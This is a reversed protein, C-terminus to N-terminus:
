RCPPRRSWRCQLDRLSAITNDGEAHSSDGNAVTRWGETHASYGYAITFGGEAHSNNGNATSMGEAHSSNGNAISDGEAHSYNGSATSNGEAHSYESSATSKGEAHSYNGSAVSSGGEAHSGKGSATSGRTLSCEYYYGYDLPTELYLFEEDVNIVMYINNNAVLADGIQTYRNPMLRSDDEGDEGNVWMEIGNKNVECYFGEYIVDSGGEAHAYAGSAHNFLYDNFIEGGEENYAKGVGGSAGEDELSNVRNAVDQLSTEGALVDGAFWANGDWDLTHANSRKNEKTGNGVIHAYKNETDEINYKGQVHQYTKSATTGYGEAHSYSGEAKTNGGEAHSAFGSAETGYGEAHANKNSATSSGGEAHSNHGSATTGYGEAHSYSGETKTSGGEAHSSFGSATTGYGEAHSDEASAKSELGEAHSNPASATTSYGESHSNDGSAKSSRGEAHSYKGIADTNFGEAHSYVGTSETNCGEAHAGAGSASTQYGEAHSYSGESVTKSGEAHSREGSAITGGGEAHSSHGYALTGNGEAHAAFGARTSNGEAHGYRGAVISGYGEAHSHEAAAHTLWGEAHSGYGVQATGVESQAPIFFVCPDAGGNVNSLWKESTNLTDSVYKIRNGSIEIVNGAFAWHYYGDSSVSFENGYPVYDGTIPEETVKEYSIKAITKGYPTEGYELSTYRYIYGENFSVASSMGEDFPHSNNYELNWPVTEADAGAGSTHVGLIALIESGVHAREVICIDDSPDNGVTWRDVEEWTLDSCNVTEQSVVRISSINGDNLINYGSDFGTNYFQKPNNWSPVVAEEGTHLYIHNNEPDIASIYYGKNGAITDVGSAVSGTALAKNEFAGIVVGGEKTPSGPLEEKKAYDNLINELEKEDIGGACFELKDVVTVGDGIKIKKLDKYVIIEGELPVFNKAKDWNEKTDIKQQFRGKLFKENAM